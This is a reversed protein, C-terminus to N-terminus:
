ASGLIFEIDNEDLSKISASDSSIVADFLERKKEQLQLIKEEITNRTILKYSFVTKTQGIRHTRDIAQDEAAKNWWPDFIFITDAATLNLGIGGTKLTMLFVKCNPDNQFQEVLLQRNGTAGTMTLYEIRHAELDQGVCEIVSLYNAFILIKHKNALADLVYEQLIERKPSYVQNDSVAEPISAIQRLETLAQLIFFQSKNIGQKAVQSRVSQYYFARRQQYLSSQEPSMDVYLIQEVKAPLEQLVDKKLRRLIFPYIKTKLEHVAVKDDDGQKIPQIYQQNFTKTSGFMAPNLFRFLSYLEGLNNEIPTGSLALRHKGSLLMVAKTVQSNFNKINQSEDLILYYFELERWKEIDNRIMGYTTLIVQQKTAVDLDRQNAYYTYFRLDPNFKKFENEWNFILSKPMIIISPLTQQPYVHSLIAIAQLTKGLGMDDALCGGLSHKHLYHLWKYGQAQYPRLKATLKPLAIRSKSIKNFGAFIDWSKKFTDNAVKDDILEQVLPLDFFSLSAKGKKKSFLRELKNIYEENILGHSGDSLTVYSNTRYQQLVDFLGLHEGEIELHADGELFDINHTLNLQLSPKVVRIKYSKLREAGLIAYNQMLDSLENKIFERALVAEIIFLDDETYFDSQAANKLRKKHQYLCKGITAYTNYNEDILESVVFTEELENIVVIRSIDFDNLLTADFGSVSRSIRLYLSNNADVKEFIISPVTNKPPGIIERYEGYQVAVNTFYSYLLCLYKELEKSPFETTFPPLSRFNEGIGSIAYITDDVLAHSETLLQPAHYFQNDYRLMVQAHLRADGDICVGIQANKDSFKIPQFNAGVINACPELHWLLFEHNALYIYDGRQEWNIHFSNQERIHQMIKLLHRTAGSYAHFDPDVERSKNDVITLYAGYEDSQLQFFVEPAKKLHSRYHSPVKLNEFFEM